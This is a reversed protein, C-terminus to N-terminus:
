EGRGGVGGGREDRQVGQKEDVQEEPGTSVCIKIYSIGCGWNGRVCSPKVTRFRQNVKPSVRGGVPFIKDKKRGRRWRGMMGFVLPSRTRGGFKLYSCRLNKGGSNNNTGGTNCGLGGRARL